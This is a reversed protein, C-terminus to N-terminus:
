IAGLKPGVIRTINDSHRSGAWCRWKTNCVRNRSIPYASATNVRAMESVTGIPPWPRMIKGMNKFLFIYCILNSPFEDDKLSILPPYVFFLNM